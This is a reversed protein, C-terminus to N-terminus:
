PELYRVPNQAFGRIRTHRYKNRIGQPCPQLSNASFGTRRKSFEALLSPQTPFPFGPFNEPTAELWSEVEFVDVVFGKDVALAYKYNGLKSRDLRWAFRCADYASGRERMSNGCSFAILREEPVLIRAGYKRILEDAHSCGRETNDVGGAINALGEYAEILAAEVEYAISEDKIGHRHIVHQVDMGSGLIELIRQNKINLYEREDESADQMNLANEAHQFIRNGKGKGVYFTHGNRPDILRYVYWGLETSVEPTFM